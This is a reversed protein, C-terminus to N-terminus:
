TDQDGRRRQRRFDDLLREAAELEELLASEADVVRATAERAADTGPEIAAEEGCSLCCIGLEWVPDRTITVIDSRCVPCRIAM